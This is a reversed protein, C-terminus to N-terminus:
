NKIVDRLNCRTLYQEEVGFIKACVYGVLAYTLRSIPIQMLDSIRRGNVGKGLVPVPERSHYGYDGGDRMGHDATVIITGNSPMAAQLMALGRDFAMLSDLSGDVDRNHGYVSDTDPLNCLIFTPRGSAKAQELAHLAERISYPNKDAAKADVYLGKLEDPLKGSLAMNIDWTTNVVDSSKGISVTYVDQERLIDILTTVGEPLQLVVDRRNSTRVFVGDRIVYPRSIVRTVRVGQELAVDFAIQTIRALEDHPIKDEWAAIQAIPDCMSAYLVVGGTKVHDSHNDEIAESGGARRNYLVDRGIRRALEDVYAAPFGDMFLKYDLPDIYGMLERHGMVSDSWTSSPGTALALDLTTAPEVRGQHEPALINGLGLRSLNPLLVQKDSAALYRDITNKGLADLVVVLVTPPTDNTTM